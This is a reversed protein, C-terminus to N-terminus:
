QVLTQVVRTGACSTLPSQNYYHWMSRHGIHMGSPQVLELHSNGFTIQNSPIDDDIDEQDVTVDDVPEDDGVDEWDDEEANDPYLSLFDYFDSIELQDYESQYAIKCHV